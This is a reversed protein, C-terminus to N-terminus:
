VNADGGQKQERLAAAQQQRGVKTSDKWQTLKEDTAHSTWHGNKDVGDLMNVSRTGKFLHEPNVCPPVDCAHCIDLGIIDEDGTHAVYMLRHMYGFKSSSPYGQPMNLKRGWIWCGDGNETVRGYQKIFEVKVTETCADVHRSYEPAWTFGEGCKICLFSKVGTM